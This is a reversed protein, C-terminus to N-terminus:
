VHIYVLIVDCMFQELYFEDNSIYVLTYLHMVPNPEGSVIRYIRCNYQMISQNLSHAIDSEANTFEFYTQLM